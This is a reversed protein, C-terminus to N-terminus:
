ARIAGDISVTHARFPATERTCPRLTAGNREWWRRADDSTWSGADKCGCLRALLDEASRPRDAPDKALCDMLIAELDAALGQGVRQSPSDPVTHLHHSCVEVVSGGAFVHEGSLLFYGVAGLAYLDSRADVSAPTTISEPSMYLPTGTLIEESTLAPDIGEGFEKVLGFDLVKPVDPVGGQRCLMINSPKVDRHILALGHAEALAGAVGQLVHIVRGPPLRGDLAVVHELTAGDLLEMAYYFVGEPTRGYDFITVTNAHTLEATRQVEREFRAVASESSKEATLLKVATPRRLMAHRACYVAGMGGEGLKEDLTYQGLKRADRAERRLGYIVKSTATCVALTLIWWVILEVTRSLAGRYVTVGYYDEAM